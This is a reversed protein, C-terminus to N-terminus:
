LIIFNYKIALVAVFSYIATGIIVTIISRLKNIKFKKLLILVAVYYAFTELIFLARLVGTAGYVITYGATVAGFFFGAACFLIYEIASVNVFMYILILAAAGKTREFFLHIGYQVIDVHINDYLMRNYQDAIGIYFILEAGSLNIILTGLLLGAMFACLKKNVTRSRYVKNRM